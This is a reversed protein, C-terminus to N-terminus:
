EVYEITKVEDGNRDVIRTELRWDGMNVDKQMDHYWSLARRIIENKSVCHSRALRTLTEMEAHTMNVTMSKHYKM